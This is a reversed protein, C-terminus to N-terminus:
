SQPCWRMWTAVSRAAEALVRYKEIVVPNTSLDSLRALAGIRLVDGDQRIYNLDKITKINVVAEPHDPLIDDKLVSLLDSGGANIRARGRYEALSEVAEGISHVNIHKFTAM